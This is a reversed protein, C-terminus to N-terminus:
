TYWHQNSSPMSFIKQVNSGYIPTLLTMTCWIKIIWTSRFKVTVSSKHLTSAHRSQQWYNRAVWQINSSHKTWSGHFTHVIKEDWELVAGMAYTSSADPYINFPHNPNPHESGSLSKLQLNNSKVGIFSCGEFNLSHHTLLIQGM